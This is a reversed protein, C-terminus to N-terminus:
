PLEISTIEYGLDARIEGLDAQCNPCIVKEHDSFGLIDNTTISIIAKCSSCTLTIYTHEM